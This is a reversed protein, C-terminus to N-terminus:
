MLSQSPMPLLTSTLSCTDAMLPVSCIGPMTIAMAFDGPFTRQLKGYPTAM